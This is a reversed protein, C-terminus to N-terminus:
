DEAGAIAPTNPRAPPVRGHPWGVPGMRNGVGTLWARCSASAPEGGPSFAHNAAAVSVSRLRTFAGRGRLGERGAAVVSCGSSHFRVAPASRKGGLVKLCKQRPAVCNAWRSAKGPCRFSIAFVGFFPMSELRLNGPDGCLASEGSRKVGTVRVDISMANLSETIKATSHYARIDDHSVQTATQPRPPDTGRPNTYTSLSPERSHRPGTQSRPEVSTAELEM